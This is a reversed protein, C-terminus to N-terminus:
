SVSTEEILGDEELDSVLTSIHNQAEELTVDYEATLIDAIGSVTCGEGLLQWIRTGTENLTYYRRTHLDLLVSEAEDLTTAVVNPNTRYTKDAM